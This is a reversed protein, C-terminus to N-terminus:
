NKILASFVRTMIRNVLNNKRVFAANLRQDPVPSDPFKFDQQNSHDLTTKYRNYGFTHSGDASFGINTVKTTTPYLTLLQHKFQHYFMRIGWARIVGEKTERLMKSLDSGGTKNFLVRQSRDKKFTAYDKVEWDIDAMKHGWSAWGWTWSRYTFYGDYSYNAPIKNLYAFASINLVQSHHQYFDLAKNLFVLFNPAFILDDEIVIFKEYTKAIETLGGILNYDVGLNEAREIVTVSKFGAASHLYNRVMKIKEDEAGNRPGDSYVILDSAAALDCAALSVLSTKLSDIRKHTFLIIPALKM